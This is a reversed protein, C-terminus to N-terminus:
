PSSSDPLARAMISKLKKLARVYRNSTTTENMKLLNAVEVNSLQEFHRLALIERDAEEMEALGEKVLNRNEDRIAAMSPTTLGGLLQAALAVSTANAPSRDISIEREADRAKVGFHRRHFKNLNQLAIFRLWLFFSMKESATKFEGIRRTAELCSEQLIDDADIKARLRPDMRFFVVRELRDHYKQFLEGLAHPDSHDIVLQELIETENSHTM